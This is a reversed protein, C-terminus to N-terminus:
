TKEKGERRIEESKKGEWRPCCNNRGTPVISIKKPQFILDYDWPESM